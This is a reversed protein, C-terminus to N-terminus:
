RSTSTWTSPTTEVGTPSSTLTTANRTLPGALCRSYSGRESFLCRCRTFFHRVHRRIPIGAHVDLCAPDHRPQWLVSSSPTLHRLLPEHAIRTAHSQRSQGPELQRSASSDTSGARCILRHFKCYGGYVVKRISNLCHLQHYVDFIAAYANDGLGWDRDELKAVTTYDKGMKTLEERTVPYVRTLEWEEWIKDDGPNPQHRILSGGEKPPFFTGNIVVDELDVSYRDYIPSYGSVRRLAANRVMYNSYFWTGFLSISVVLAFLNAVSVLILTRRNAVVQRSSKTPAESIFGKTEDEDSESTSYRGAPSVVPRYEFKRLWNM